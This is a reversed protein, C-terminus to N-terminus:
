QPGPNETLQGALFDQALKEMDPSPRHVVDPLSKWKVSLGAGLAHTVLRVTSAYAGSLSQDEAGDREGCTILFPIGRLDSLSRFGGPLDEQWAWDYSSHLSVARCLAPKWLAFRQLFAAGRGYGHLLLRDTDIPYSQRIEQLAQLTAEGSWEQPMTCDSWFQMFGPVVLFLDHADAFRSWTHGYKCYEAADQNISPVVLLVRYTRGSAPDFGSPVRFFYSPQGPFYGPAKVRIQGVSHLLKKAPIQERLESLLRLAVSQVTDYQRTNWGFDRVVRASSGGAKAIAKRLFNAGENERGFHIALAGLNLNANARLEDAKRNKNLDNEPTGAM